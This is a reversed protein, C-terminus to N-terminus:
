CMRARLRNLACHQRFKVTGAPIGLIQATEGVTKDSLYIHQLVQRHQNSLHHLLATMEVASLVYDAHDTSPSTGPCPLLWGRVSGETSVLRDAHHWARVFTEQVIDEVAHHDNLLKEAYALLATGHELILTQLHNRSSTESAAGTIETIEDRLSQRCM